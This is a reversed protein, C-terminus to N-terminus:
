RQHSQCRVGGNAIRLCRFRSHWGALDFVLVRERGSRISATLWAGRRPNMPHAEVSLGRWAVAMGAAQRQADNFYAPVTSVAAEVPSRSTLQPMTLGTACSAALLEEPSNRETVPLDRAVNGQTTPGIPLSFLSAARRLSM